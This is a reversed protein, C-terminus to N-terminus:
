TTSRVKVFRCFRFRSPSLLRKLLSRHKKYRVRLERFFAPDNLLDSVHIQELDLSWKSGQIAFLIRQSTAPTQNMVASPAQDQVQTAPNRNGGLANDLNYTSNNQIQSSNSSSDSTGSSSPTYRQSAKSTGLGSSSTSSTLSSIATMTRLGIKYWSTRYGTVHCCACYKPHHHLLPM